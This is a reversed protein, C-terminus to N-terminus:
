GGTPYPTSGPMMPLNMAAPQQPSSGWAWASASASPAPAPATPAVGTGPQAMPVGMAASQPSTNGGVAASLAPTLGSGLNGVLDAVDQYLSNQPQTASNQSQQAAPLVSALGSGPQTMPVGTAASQPSPGWAPPAPLVSAVGSGPQTM